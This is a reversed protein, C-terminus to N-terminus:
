LNYFRKCNNIYQNKKFCNFEEKIYFEDKIIYKYYVKNCELCVLIGKFCHIDDITGIYDKSFCLLDDECCIVDNEFFSELDLTDNIEKIGSFRGSYEYFAKRHLYCVYLTRYSYDGGYTDCIEDGFSVLDSCCFDDYYDM